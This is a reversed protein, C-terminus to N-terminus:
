SSVRAAEIRAAVDKATGSVSVADGGLLYVVSEEPLASSRIASVHEPNVYVKYDGYGFKVMRM